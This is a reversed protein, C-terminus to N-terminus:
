VMGPTATCRSRGGRDPNRTAHPRPACMQHPQTWNLIATRVLSPPPSSATAAHIGADDRVRGPHDDAVISRGRRVRGSSWRLQGAGGPQGDQYAPTQGFPGSGSGGPVSAAVPGAHLRRYDLAACRAGCRAQQGAGALGGWHTRTDGPRSRQHRFRGPPQPGGDDDCTFRSARRFALSRRGNIRASSRISGQSSEVRVARPCTYSSRPRCRTPDAPSTAPRWTRSRSRLSPELLADLRKVQLM